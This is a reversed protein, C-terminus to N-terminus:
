EKKKKDELIDEAFDEGGGAFRSDGPMGPMVMSQVMAVFQELRFRDDFAAAVIDRGFPIVRREAKTTVIDRVEKTGLPIGEIEVEGQAIADNLIIESSGRWHAGVIYHWESLAVQAHADTRAGYDTYLWGILADLMTMRARIDESSDVVFAINSSVVVKVAAIAENRSISLGLRQMGKLQENVQDKFRKNWEDQATRALSM